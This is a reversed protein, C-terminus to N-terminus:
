NHVCKLAISLGELNKDKETSDVEMSTTERNIEISKEQDPEEELSTTGELISILKDTSDEGSFEQKFDISIDGIEEEKEESAPDKSIELLNEQKIESVVSIDHSENTVDTDDLTLSSSIKLVSNEQNVIDKIESIEEEEKIEMEVDSIIDNIVASSVDENNQSSSSAEKDDVIVEEKEEKIMRDEVVNECEM